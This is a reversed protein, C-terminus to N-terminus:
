KTNLKEELMKIYYGGVVSRAQFGRQDPRDTYVWDSMPVRDVTENMFSYVPDIFKEFTEKDDALTATWMIWDTKTYTERNDLPLGYKNQKTLYYAIEKQAVEAPFIDLKLLKNWVLNYKQSWTNPKDFTLRYHDGDGAMKVWENAMEKAKTTYKEAIDKKGLMDALYGYCGVAMIAKISLNTNHAFHGAFDDTCLQNEPDLGKEVLYDTWITLVDWHKAAYDANGELAAVAATITIMNGAEEVPMDGGYTQGNAIPYTGVDHAPFPKVWKGSESYYFIHNLLGKVLEPNYYLFLPASPYTIDVTGISGNSFNEKSLFLLDGNPAEVLKHASIAQRYALACLEAYRKGGAGSTKEILEKDFKYCKEILSTYEQKANHFQEIITKNGERNWYPRLNDNFYQISYIDDYGLMIMGNASDTNGLIKVLALQNNETRKEGQYSKLNNNTFNEKLNKSNGISYITNEKDAALYFYGWDIRVDDGKKALIEQSTSGTKLFVSGGTEFAESVSAQEPTNVAWNTSAELYLEVDHKKGDTSSVQYSIYNIPRSILDLSEMFLPATFTIKLDVDGCAFTYHTQTAQVDVSKQKAAGDFYRTEDKEVQLGFDLLAGGRRNYCFGAIINEGKKLTSLVNETLKVRQNKKAKDGINVVEIGNIYIIVDDDHSYELYIDKNMKDLDEELNFIRRVWIYETEWSTKATKESDTTGFAAKGAKWSKDNFDKQMWNDSPKTMTYKGHWDGQEATELVPDFEMKEIGMFRYIKNDVKIAGILPFEKGTWHRINDDYLNDTFAWGSTYPDITILPYAPARLNNKIIDYGKEKESNCSILITVLILLTSIKRAM